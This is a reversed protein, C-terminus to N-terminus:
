NVYVAASGQTTDQVPAYSATFYGNAPCLTSGSTLDFQQNSFDILSDTNSVTGTLTDNDAQYTCDITGVITDLELESQIPAASTGTVTITDTSDDVAASFPLNQATVFNVATVGFTNSSCGDFSQGTVSETAVGSAAPNATVTSAFDSTTCSVGSTDSTDSDFTATTGSALAASITDGVAVNSGGISGYTLVDPTDASAPLAFATSLLVSAVAIGLYLYKRMIYGKMPHDPCDNVRGGIGTGILHAAAGKVTELGASEPSPM